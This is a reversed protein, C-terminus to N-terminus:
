AARETLESRRRSRRPFTVRYCRGCFGKALHRETSTSCRVCRDHLHSWRGPRDQQWKMINCHRCAVVINSSFNLGGANMPIVHDLTMLGSTDGCYHCIGRRLIAEAEDITITGAVGFGLARQNAHRAADTSKQRQAYKGRIKKKYERLYAARIAPDKHPM